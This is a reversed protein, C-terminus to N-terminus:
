LYVTNRSLRQDAAIEEVLQGDLAAEVVRAREVARAPATRSRALRKVAQREESTVERLHLRRGM